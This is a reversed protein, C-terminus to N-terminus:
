LTGLTHPRARLIENLMVRHPKIIDLSLWRTMTNEPIALVEPTLYSTEASLRSILFAAKEFFEVGGTDSLDQDQLLHAYVYLKEVTRRAGQVFDLARTLTEPSEGLRGRWGLAMEPLASAEDFEQVWKEQIQM